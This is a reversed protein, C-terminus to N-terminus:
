CGEAYIARLVTTIMVHKRDETFVPELGGDSVYDIRWVKAIPATNLRLYDILLFQDELLTKEATKRITSDRDTGRNIITQRVTIEAEVQEHRGTTLNAAAKPGILFGWGRNLTLTDNFEPDYSNMLEKYTPAAFLGVLITDIGDYLDSIASM